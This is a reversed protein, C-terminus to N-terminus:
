SAYSRHVGYLNCLEEVSNVPLWSPQSKNSLHSYSLLLQWDEEESLRRTTTSTHRTTIMENDGSKRKKKLQKTPFWKPVSSAM